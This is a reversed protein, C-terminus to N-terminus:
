PRIIAEGLFFYKLIRYILLHELLLVVSKSLSCHFASWLYVIFISFFLDPSVDKRVLVLVIPTKRFHPILREVEVL